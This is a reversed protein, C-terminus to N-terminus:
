RRSFAFLLPWSTPKRCTEGEETPKLKPDDLGYGVGAMDFGASMQDLVQGYLLEFDAIHKSFYQCAVDPNCAIDVCTSLEDYFSTVTLIQAQLDSSTQSNVRVIKEALEGIQDRSLGGEDGFSALQDRYQLWPATIARRAELMEAHNFREVFSLTQDVGRDFRAIAMEILVYFIGLATVMLTLLEILNWDRGRGSPTPRPAALSAQRVNAM